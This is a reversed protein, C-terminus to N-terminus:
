SLARHTVHQFLLGPLYLHLGCGHHSLLPSVGLTVAPSERPLLHSGKMLTSDHECIKGM